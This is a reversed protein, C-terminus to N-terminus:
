LEVHIITGFESETVSAHLTFAIFDVDSMCYLDLSVVIILYKSLSSLWKEADRHETPTEITNSYRMEAVTKREMVFLTHM